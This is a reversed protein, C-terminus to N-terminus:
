YFFKSFYWNLIFDGYLTSIIVGISIYPVLPISIKNNITNYNKKFYKIFIGIISALLCCIFMALFIHFAGLFLGTVAFLKVDGGGIGNTILAILLFPLSILFFGIIHYTVNKKSIILFIVSLIFILFNISDPVIGIKLDIVSLCILLSFVLGYIYSYVSFNKTYYLILYLFFNIFFILFFLIKNKFLDLSFLYKINFKNECFAFIIFNSLVSIFFSLIILYLM